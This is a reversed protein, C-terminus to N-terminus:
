WYDETKPEIKFSDMLEKLCKECLDFEYGFADPLAPSYYGTSYRVGVLGYFGPDFDAVEGPLNTVPRLSNGCKNCLVDKIVTTNIKQDETLKM